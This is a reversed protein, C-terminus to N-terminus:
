FRIGNKKKRNKSSAKTVVKSPQTSQSSTDTESPSSVASVDNEEKVTQVPASALAARAVPVARGSVLRVEENYICATGKDALQRIAEAVTDTLEYCVGPVFSCNGIKCSVAVTFYRKDM